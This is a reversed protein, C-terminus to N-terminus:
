GRGGQLHRPLLRGPQAQPDEHVAHRGQDGADSAGGAPLQQEIPLQRDSRVELPRQGVRRSLLQNGKVISTGFSLLGYGHWKGKKFQGRFSFKDTTYTGIGTMQNSVWTGEYTEGSAYNLAGYGHMKNNSIGGTYYTGDEFRIVGCKDLILKDGSIRFTGRVEDPEKSFSISQKVSGIKSHTEYNRHVTNKPTAIRGSSNGRELQKSANVGKSPPNRFVGTFQVGNWLGVMSHGSPMLLIGMGEKLSDKMGGIYIKGDKSKLLFDGLLALQECPFFGKLIKVDPAYNYIEGELSFSLMMEEYKMSKTLLDIKKYNFKYNSTNPILFRGSFIRPLKYYTGSSPFGENVFGEFLAVGKSSYIRGKGDPVGDKIEGEYVLVDNIFYSGRYNPMAQKFFGEYKLKQAGFAIRGYHVPKDSITNYDQENPYLKGELPSDRIQYGWFQGGEFYNTVAFLKKLSFAQSLLDLHCELPSTCVRLSLQGLNSLLFGSGSIQKNFLLSTSFNLPNLSRSIYRGDTIRRKECTIQNGFIDIFTSSLGTNEKAGIKLYAFYVQAYQEVM